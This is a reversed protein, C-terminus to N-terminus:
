AILAFRGLVEDAVDFVDRGYTALFDAVIEETAIDLDLGYSFCFAHCLEHCLVSENLHDPLNDCLFITCLDDDCVGLAFTGDSRMLETSTGNEFRIHWVKYNIVVDM